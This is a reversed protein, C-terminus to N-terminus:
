VLILSRFPGSYAHQLSLRALFPDHYFLVRAMELQPIFVTKGSVETVFCYQNSDTGKPAKHYAPCDELRSVQWEQANSVAFKFPKGGKDNKAVSNLVRRRALIPVASFYISKSEKGVFDLSLSWLNRDLGRFVSGIGSIKSDDEIHKYKAVRKM